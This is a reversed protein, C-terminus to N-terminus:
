EADEAVTIRLTDIRNDLTSQITFSFPPISITEGPQPLDERYSLILGGLTEYEGTPLNWNYTDNLYDIELRASLLWTHKDLQQEVLDDEDHEDEIEGFIEEIVDEMSVLGSTGGFEDVVLSLSKRENIFRIMLENALITEPVIIIPTLIDEIRTPKKFLESSHCYGIVDDISDKYILIKSHGSEVFAQRLKEIGDQIEVAIIETRPIMCERVRVSKFELANHFIKKDLAIDEDEHKVKLMNKLYHNLDTLGFVPKEDSYESRFIKTIVFKSLSVISIVLPSLIYYLINFPVALATLMLNPNILFLSKPLFEATFLVLITALLTQIILIAIDNQFLEPLWLQLKPELLQAMFIGYLVLAITNGILTTGIFLSPKKIFRSFIKGSLLGQKAQLELQLKNASLYAIEIGSFFFSFTLSLVILMLLTPDM